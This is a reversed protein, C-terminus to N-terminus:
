RRVALLDPLRGRHGDPRADAGHGRDGARTRRPRRWASPDPASPSAWGRSTPPITPRRPTSSRGREADDAEGRALAMMTATADVAVSGPRSGRSGRCIEDVGTWEGRDLLVVLLNLVSVSIWVSVGTSRSVAVAERGMRPASTSIMSGIIVILNVLGPGPARGIATKAMDAAAELLVRSLSSHGTFGSYHVALSNFTDSLEASDGLLEALKIRTEAFRGPTACFCRGGHRSGRSLWSSPRPTRRRAFRRGGLSPM